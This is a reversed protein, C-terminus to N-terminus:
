PIRKTIRLAVSKSESTKISVTESQLDGTQALAQGGHSVRASITVDQFQSLKRSPIMAQSDDLEFTVPWSKIPTRYVAVPIPSDSAKAYVFLMADPSVSNKLAPDINISGIVRIETEKAVSKTGDGSLGQAEKINADIIAVDPSNNPIVARLEKWLKLADAYRREEHALSAKLWLAKSHKPELKLAADLASRTANNALTKAMTASVDAYDAWADATMKKLKIVKEFAASSEPFNRATRQMQAIALWSDSDNPQLAVKQQYNELAANDTTAQSIGQSDTGQTTIVQGSSDNNVSKIQHKKALDAGELDGLFEYSQQLLLWDQDSGGGSSLRKALKETAEAMSGTTVGAESTSVPHNAIGTVPNIGQVVMEPRGLRLYIVASVAVFVVLVAILLTLNRRSLSGMSSLGAGWLRVVFFASAIGAMFGAILWFYTM